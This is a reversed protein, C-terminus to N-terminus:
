SELSIARASETILVGCSFSFHGSLCFSILQLHDILNGVSLQQFQMTCSYARFTQPFTNQIYLAQWVFIFVLDQIENMWIFLLFLFIGPVQHSALRSSVGLELNLKLFYLSPGDLCDDSVWRQEGLTSMCMCVVFFCATVLFSFEYKSKFGCINKRYYNFLHEKCKTLQHKTYTHDSSLCTRILLCKGKSQM